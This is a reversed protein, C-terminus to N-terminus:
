PSPSGSVAQGVDPEGCHRLIVARAADRLKIAASWDQGDPAIPAGITIRISSRRPFWHGDRLVSRTGRISVPVVPVTGEAAILFAGMHFARLGPMRGFTGEPFFILPHGKRVSAAIRRTDDMTREIDFRELFQFGLRQLGVRSLFRGALERKATYGFRTPVIAALVIADLYSAHNSVILCPGELPLNERGRVAVRVGSLRVLCRAAGYAAARRWSRRPLFVAGLWAPVFCLGFLALVYGAFLVDTAARSARRLAPRLSAWALRAIQIWVARQRRGILGQEYLERSAARRIKGSSTKLVTHPPVLVIDDPPMGILDIALTNIRARLTEGVGAAPERTEALVVLRETGLVPDPSSFVAVCGKRIGPVDGIADELEYPYINHGARIIIDKTRSTLYVNGEAMYAVDGSELWEDQFLRRTEGANRFYGSTASPGRFQLRGEARDIVERGTADVIRIQHGAIPRGCSVFALADPDGPAAPVALGQTVFLEREIRDILPPRGLPPFSLGLSCEALGYVPMVSEARFGHKSYREIFRQVTEPRVPEAGNLAARWSSLDLGEIERDDIKRLCFEYAFNPAASITGRHRHIAWLWRSPRSLFTLPSMIVLRAAHHLSGFWAGILGMDHYLPLWSVVVDTSDVKLAQGMTRINALLNAHTLVVGKPHGTSGSTYQLLAIDQTKLPPETYTGSNESLEQVTSVHRLTEVQSKILLALPKAEPMTILEVALANTLIRSQRRLHDEIQSLRAPPYLPVPAGGAILVGYFSVFFDLGTPQMIGVSQGPQLDHAQLGRPVARARDWLDRYTIDVEREDDLYLTLHTRDPHARAHWALVETLTGAGAPSSEVKEGPGSRMEVSQALVPEGKAILAARLLDRPTEATSLVGEPLRVGFSREIRMLLEVRGLSDLGLDGDLTSDLSVVAAAADGRHVEAVMVRVITLLSEASVEM